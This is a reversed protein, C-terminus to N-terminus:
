VSHWIVAPLTHLQNNDKRKSSKKTIKSFITVYQLYQFIDKKKFVFDM